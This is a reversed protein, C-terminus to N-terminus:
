QGCGEAPRPPRRIQVWGVIRDYLDTAEPGGGRFSDDIADLLQFALHHFLGLIDDGFDQTLHVQAPPCPWPTCCIACDWGPREPSHCPGPELGPRAPLDDVATM